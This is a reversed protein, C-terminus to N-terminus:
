PRSATTRSWCTASRRRRARRAREAVRAATRGRDRARGPTSGFAADPGGAQARRRLRRRAGTRAQARGPQAPLQLPQDGRRRRDADQAHVRVERRRGAVRGDPRGRGRAQSGRRRLVHLDVDRPGGRGQGGEDAQRGRGLDAQRGGRPASRACRRGARPDGRAQAGAAPRAHGSGSRRDRAPGGGCRGEAGPRRSRGFVPSRVEQWEGTEVWEGAILLRKEAVTTVM